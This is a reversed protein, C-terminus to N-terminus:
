VRDGGMQKRPGKLSGKGQVWSTVRSARVRMHGVCTGRTGVPIADSATERDRWHVSVCRSLPDLWLSARSGGGQLGHGWYWGAEQGPPSLIHQEMRPETWIPCPIGAESVGAASPAPQGVPACHLVPPVQPRHMSPRLAEQERSFGASAKLHAGASAGCTHVCTASHLGCAHAGRM